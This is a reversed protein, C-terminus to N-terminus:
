VNYILLYSLYIGLGFVFHAILSNKRAQKPQPTLQAFYGFGFAPQLILFPALTTLLGYVISTLLNVPYFGLSSLMLYCWVFIIGTVYHVGWGVILEGPKAAAQAINQHKFTGDFWSLVWRGVFAYNAPKTQTIKKRLYSFVDLFLTALIGIIISQILLQTM